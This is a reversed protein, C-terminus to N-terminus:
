NMIIDTAQQNAVICNVVANEINNLQLEDIGLQKCIKIIFDKEEVSYNADSYAIGLLEFVIIIRVVEDDSIKKVISEVTENVDYFIEELQTEQKYANIINREDETIVGDIRILMNALKVFLNRDSMDIAQLFMIKGKMEVKIDQKNELKKNM